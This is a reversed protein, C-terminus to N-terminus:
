AATSHAMASRIVQPVYAPTLTDAWTFRVPTFGAGIIDNQRKRDRFIATPNDHAEAGDAEGIVRARVWALDGIAVVNGSADRVRFQLEDPPVGGDTARLRVRTELPSEAREDAEALWPRARLAGRRGRLHARVLEVEHANLIRRNLGSDLLCVATFRDVRLMLDALTRAANTVAIGDVTTLDGPRFVFQHLRIGPDAYRRPRAFAGPLSVHVVDDRGMGAIGHLEAATQLVAVAHPGGSFVAARILAQRPPEDELVDADILYVGENLRLWRRYRCLRKVQNESLGARRCQAATVVGHQRAAVTRVV